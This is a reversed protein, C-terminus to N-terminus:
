LQWSLGLLIFMQHIVIWNLPVDELIFHFDRRIIGLFTMMNGEILSFCALFDRLLYFQIKSPSHQGNLVGRVSVGQRPCGPSPSHNTQLIDVHPWRTNHQSSWSLDKILDIQRSFLAVKLNSEFKYKILIGWKM